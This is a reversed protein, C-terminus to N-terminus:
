VECSGDCEMVADCITCVVNTLRVVFFGVCVSTICEDVQRHLYACHAWITENAAHTICYERRTDICEVLVLGAALSCACCAPRKLITPAM